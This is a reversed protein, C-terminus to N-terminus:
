KCFRQVIQYIIARILGTDLSTNNQRIKEALAFIQKVTINFFVKGTALKVSQKVDDRVSITLESIWADDILLLQKEGKLKKRVEHCAADVSAPDAWWVDLTNSKTRLANLADAQLQDKGLWFHVKETRHWHSRDSIALIYPM